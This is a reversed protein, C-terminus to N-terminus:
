RTTHTKIWAEAEPLTEFREIEEVRYRTVKYRGRFFVLLNRWSGLECKVPVYELTVIERWGTRHATGFHPILGRFSTSRRTWLVARCRSRTWVWAAVILCNLPKM